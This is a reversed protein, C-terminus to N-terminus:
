DDETLAAEVMADTIVHGPVAPLVPFDQDTASTAAGGGAGDGAAEHALLVLDSLARGISTGQARARGRALALVRDDIDLTTRVADVTSRM